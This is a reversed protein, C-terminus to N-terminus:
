KRITKNANPQYREHVGLSNCDKRQKSNVSDKSCSLISLMVLVYKIPRTSATIMTQTTSYKAKTSSAGIVSAHHSALAPCNILPISIADVARMPTPATKRNCIFNEEFFTNASNCFVVNRPYEASDISRPTAVIMNM